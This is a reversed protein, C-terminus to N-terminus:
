SNPIVSQINNEISNNKIAFSVSESTWNILGTNKILEGRKGTLPDFKFIKM